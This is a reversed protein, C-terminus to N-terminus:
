CLILRKLLSILRKLPFILRKLPLILRKLLFIAGDTEGRRLWADTQDPYGTRVLRIDWRHDTPERKWCSHLVAGRALVVVTPCRGPCVRSLHSNCSSHLDVQTLSFCHFYTFFVTFCLSFRYFVTFFVTFCLSFCHFVTFIARVGSSRSSSSQTSFRGTQIFDYHKIWHEDHYYLM